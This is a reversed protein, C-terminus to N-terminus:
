SEPSEHRVLRQAAANSQICARKKACWKCLASLLKTLEQPVDEDNCL